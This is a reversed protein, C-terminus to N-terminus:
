DGRPKLLSLQGPLVDGHQRIVLDIGERIYVAV